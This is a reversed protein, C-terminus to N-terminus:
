EHRSERRRVARIFVDELSPEKVRLEMVHYGEKSLLSLIEPTKSYPDVVALRISKSDTSQTVEKVGHISELLKVIEGDGEQVVLELITEVGFREKLEETTGCALIKGKDIIAIRDCLYEAESMIHTTFFVTLGEGKAKERIFDLLTRKVIPDLGVTPEDLFLLEMDHMFERAVQLRKRQGLSLELAKREMVDRLGFIEALFDARRRREQRDVGWLLGYVELNERATMFLELSLQQQVYGIRCRIDVPNKVVNFGLVFAEGGSPPILTTLIRVTTTKGAGNPGIFGFVEGRFVEFSVSDLARVGGYDKVLDRVSIVM